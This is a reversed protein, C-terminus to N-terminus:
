VASANDGSTDVDNNSLTQAELGGLDVLVPETYTKRSAGLELEIIPDM